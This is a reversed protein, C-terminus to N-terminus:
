TRSAHGHSGTGTEDWRRAVREREVANSTLALAQDYAGRAEDTRGTWMPLLADAVAEKALEIDRLLRVLTAVARGYEERFVREISPTV